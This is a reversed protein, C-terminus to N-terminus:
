AAQRERPELVQGYEKSAHTALLAIDSHLLFALDAAEPAAEANSAPEGSFSIDSWTLAAM